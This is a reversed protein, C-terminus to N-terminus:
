TMQNATRILKKTHDLKTELAKIHSKIDDLRNTMLSARELTDTTKRKKGSQMIENLDAIGMSSEEDLVDIEPNNKLHKADWTGSDLFSKEQPPHFIDFDHLDRIASSHRTIEETKFPDAQSEFKNM